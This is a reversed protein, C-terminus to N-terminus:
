ARTDGLQRALAIFSEADAVIVAAEEQSAHRDPAYDQRLRSRLSNGFMSGYRSDVRGSTVFVRSFESVAGRQSKVKVGEILLAAKAAYLMAYYAVSIVDDYCDAALLVHASHMKGGAMTLWTGPDDLDAPEDTAYEAPTETIQAATANAEIRAAILRGDVLRATLLDFGEGRAEASVGQGAEFRCEEIVLPSLYGACGELLLRYAIEGVERDGLRLAEGRWPTVVMVDVDSDATASGRARSGFLILRRIQGPFRALLEDRFRLTTRAIETPLHTLVISPAALVETM